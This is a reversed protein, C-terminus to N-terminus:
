AATSLSVSVRPFDVETLAIKNLYNTYVNLAVNAIIEAIEGETL